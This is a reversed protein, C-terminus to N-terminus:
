FRLENTRENFHRRYIKREYIREHKKNTNMSCLIVINIQQQKIVAWCLDLNPSLM